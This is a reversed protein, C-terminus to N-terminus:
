EYDGGYEKTFWCGQLSPYFFCCRTKEGLDMRPFLVENPAGESIPSAICSGREPRLYEVADRLLFCFSLIGVVGVVYKASRNKDLEPFFKQNSALYVIFVIVMALMVFLKAGIPIRFWIEAEGAFISVASDFVAWIRGLLASLIQLARM